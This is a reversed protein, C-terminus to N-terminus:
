ECTFCRSDGLRSGLVITSFANTNAALQNVFTELAARQGSFRELEQTIKELETCGCCPQCCSDTLKLGNNIAEFSLCNDGVLNFNGDPTPRIGNITKICPTQAADGECVCPEITGEGNLANLVIQTTTPTAVVAFQMNRGAVLEIDGYLRPGPVGAASAVRFSSIGRIMPRVAQPEIRTSDLEFNFLGPPQSQITDSRGIVIKGTIDDYPDIGGISFVKNRIQATLPILATAVDYIESVADYAFILQVGSAYLGIQRIFFRGTQLDVAPSIAIDLGVIFDNPLTFAGTVDQRTAEAAIPYARQSNHQLFDLNWQSLPM